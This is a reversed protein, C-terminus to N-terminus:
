VIYSSRLAIYGLINNGHRKIPEKIKRLFLFLADKFSGCYYMFLGNIEILKM